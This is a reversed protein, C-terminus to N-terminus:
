QITEVDVSTTFDKILDNVAYEMGEKLIETATDKYEHKAQVVIEDHIMNIMHAQKVDLKNWIRLGALKIIDAGTGQVPFNNSDTFKQVMMKRGYLTSVIFRGYDRCKESNSIHYEYIGQYLDLFKQRYQQAEQLSIIMGFNEFAYAQFTKAGAGYLFGFNVAKAKQREEKSVNEVGLVFKATELHMDKNNSFIDKLTIDDCVVAAIRAEINPYDAKILVYDEMDNAYFREKMRRPVTQLPLNRSAMRGTYGVCSNFNSYAIPNVSYKEIDGELKRLSRNTLIEPVLPIELNKLLVAKAGSEKKVMEGTKIDKVFVTVNGGNKKVHEVVQKNSNANLGNLEGFSKQLEPQIEAKLGYLGNINLPVGALEMETVVKVFEMELKAVNDTLIKFYKDDSTNFSKENLTRAQFLVSKPLYIVDMYAYFLMDSTLSGGWEASQSEKSLDVGFYNKVMDKYGNKILHKLPQKQYSVLKSGLMTDYIENPILRSGSYKQIAMLDFKINHGCLNKDPIMALIKSIDDYHTDLIFVHDKVHIQVLRITNRKPDLAREKRQVAYYKALNRDSVNKVLKSYEERAEKIGWDKPYTEVDLFWSSASSLVGEIDKLPCSKFDLESPIDQPKYTM